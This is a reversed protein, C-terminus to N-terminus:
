IQRAYQKAMLDLLYEQPNHYSLDRFENCSTVNKMNLHKYPKITKRIIRSRESKQVSAPSILEYMLRQHLTLYTIFMM